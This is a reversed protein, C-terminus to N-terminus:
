FVKYPLEVFEADMGDLDGRILYKKFFMTPVKISKNKDLHFLRPKTNEEFFQYKWDSKFYIANLLLMSTDDELNDPNILDKIKENTKESCWSNIIEAAEENRTFDVEDCGSRFYNATM